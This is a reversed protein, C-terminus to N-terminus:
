PETKLSQQKETSKGGPYLADQRLSKLVAVRRAVGLDM